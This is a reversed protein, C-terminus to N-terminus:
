MMDTLYSGPENTPKDGGVADVVYWSATVALLMEEPLAPTSTLFFYDVKARPPRGEASAERPARDGARRPITGPVAACANTLATCHSARDPRVNAEHGEWPAAPRDGGM